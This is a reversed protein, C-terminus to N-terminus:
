VNVKTAPTKQTAQRARELRKAFDYLVTEHRRPDAQVLRNVHMHMLSHIVSQQRLESLDKIETRLAAVLQDRQHRQRALQERWAQIAASPRRLADISKRLDRFRAGLAVLTNSRSQPSSHENLFNSAIKDLFEARATKDPELCQAYDDVSALAYLWRQHLNPYEDEIELLQLVDQSDLMFLQECLVLAAEGGYRQAEIVYDDSQVRWILGDRRAQHLREYVQLLTPQLNSDSHFRLRLHEFQDKYRIFFWRDIAKDAQTFLPSIVERIVRDSYGAGTYIRLYAWEDLNPCVKGEGHLDPKPSAIRAESVEKEIRMPVIWEQSRQAFDAQNAAAQLTLCEHLFIAQHKIIEDLLSSVSAPNELDVPLHNDNMDWTVYRPLQRQQRWEAISGQEAAQNLAEIDAKKLTWRARSVILGAVEVRPLYDFDRLAAPWNFGIWAADEEQLMALFQYTGLQRANYNHASTMRPIVRRGTKRERLIFRDGVLQISLDDLWFQQERPLESNGAFVLDYDALRPKRLINLIRDQPHHTIEAYIAEPIVARQTQYYDVSAATLDASLHTFRSILELGNRGGVYKLEIQREGNEPKSLLNVQAYLGEATVGNAHANPNLEKLEDASIQIVAAKPDHVLKKLLIQDIPKLMSQGIGGGQGDRQLRLGDLLETNIWGNDPFPLGLEPHLAYALNVEREEFRERFLNKYEPMTSGGYVSHEALVQVGKVLREVEDQSIQLPQDIVTDIQLVGNQLDKNGLEAKILEHIEEYHAVLSTESDALARIQNLKALIERAKALAPHAPCKSLAIELTCANTSSPALDPLLLRRDIAGHLFETAEAASIDPDSCLLDCIEQFNRPSQCHQRLILFGENLDFEVARYTRQWNSQYVWDVYSLHTGVLQTTNSIQWKIQQRLDHDALAKELLRAEVAADLHIGRRLSRNAETQSTQGIKALQVQAFLGFPTCRYAARSLFKALTAILKKRDSPYRAADGEGRRFEQLSAHLSQSSIYLAEDVLPHEYIQLIYDEHDASEHWDQFVSLPLLPSRAIAFKAPHLTTNM